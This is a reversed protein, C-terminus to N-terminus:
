TENEVSQRRVEQGGGDYVSDDVRRIEDTVVENIVTYVLAPPGDAHTM